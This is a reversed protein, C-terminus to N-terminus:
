QVGVNKNEEWKRLNIDLKKIIESKLKKWYPFYKIIYEADKEENFELDMRNSFRMMYMLEDILQSIEKREQDSFHNFEEMSIASHPNAMVLPHLYGLWSSAINALSRRVIRLPHFPHVRKENVYLHIELENNIEDLSPLSYKEKLINYKKEFENYM